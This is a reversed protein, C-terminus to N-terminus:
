VRRPFPRPPPPSACKPCSAHMLESRVRPALYEEVTEWRGGDVRVRKCGDCMAIAHAPEGPTRASELALLALRVNTLSRELQTFLEQREIAHRIVRVLLGDDFEGKCLYDQAGLRVADLMAEEDALASLVVVPVQRFRAHFVSFTALGVSDPLGLDLLVVDFARRELMTLADSLRAAEAIHIESRWRSKLANRVFRADAPNDVLVSLWDDLNSSDDM